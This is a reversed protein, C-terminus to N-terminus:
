GMSTAAALYARWGGFSTIDRDPDLAETTCLFGLVQAGDSLDM